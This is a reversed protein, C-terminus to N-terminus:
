NGNLVKFVENRFFLLSDRYNKERSNRFARELDQAINRSDEFIFVVTRKISSPKLEVRIFRLGNLDLYAAIAINDTSYESM